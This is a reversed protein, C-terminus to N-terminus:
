FGLDKTFANVRLENITNTSPELSDRVNMTRSTFLGIGNVINSFPPREQIISLSPETVEMYTDLDESGVTFIYSFYRATRNLNPDVPIQSGVFAYFGDGGIYYSYAIPPSSYTIKVNNFVVWDIYKQWTQTPDSKLSEVYHFRITLQYRKGGQAPIWRVEANQGPLFTIKQPPAQPKEITFSHVLGTSATVEKNTQNNFIRLKYQYNENLQGTTYYVLQDPYYFIGSDKNTVMTTDCDYTKKLTAGDYEELTVQLKDPYNSSDPIRAFQMADGPGLFAKTVKIYHVNESQDILGYVVTVDKWDANVNLEKNCSLFIFTTLFLLLFVRVRPM